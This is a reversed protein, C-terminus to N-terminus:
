DFIPRVGRRRHDRRTLVTRPEHSSGVRKGAIGKKAPLHSILRQNANGPFRLLYHREEHFRNERTLPVRPFRIRSERSSLKSYRAGESETAPHASSGAPERPELHGGYGARIARTLGNKLKLLRIDSLTSIDSTREARLLSSLSMRSGARVGTGLDGLIEGVIARLTLLLLGAQLM